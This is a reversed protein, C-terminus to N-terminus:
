RKMADGVAAAVTDKAPSQGILREVIASAADAAISGVNSMAANRTQAISREAAALREHMETELRKHLQEAERAHQERTSHAIGQARARADSLSKEYAAHAADSREKFQSAAALDDSMRDARAKLISGVRPLAVRAMVVYLLVFSLALWALQSPFNETQFPPFSNHKAPAQTTATTAM